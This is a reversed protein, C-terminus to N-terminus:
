DLYKIKLPNLEACYLDYIDYDKVVPINKIDYSEEIEEPDFEIIEFDKFTQATISDLCQRLYKEVGYIPVIVSLKIMDAKKDM